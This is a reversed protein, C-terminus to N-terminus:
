FTFTVYSGAVHRNYDYDDVNSHNWTFTGRLAVEVFQAVPVALDLKLTLIHDQRRPGTAPDIVITRNEYQRFLYRVLAAAHLDLPLEIGAGAAVEFGDYDFETGDTASREYALGFRAFTLPAPLYIFQSVGLIHLEGDPDFNPIGGTSYRYEFNHFQYLVQTVGWDESTYTLSPAFRTMSRYNKSIDLQTTSYDIRIGSRLDGVMWGLDVWGVHTSQDVENAEAHISLFASYGFRLTIQEWDGLDFYTNLALVGTADDVRKPKVLSSSSEIIQVDTGVFTPNSDYEIGSSVDFGWWRSEPQIKKGLIGASLALPDSPSLSAADAFASTSADLNGMFVESLGIYYRAQLRLAPDLRLASQMHLVTESFKQRRYDAVGAYFEARANDPEVALVRDFELGAREARDRRLLAVGLAFRIGSDKPDAAVAREFLEIALEPRDQQSAIIGLYQLTSADERNELLAAEFHGKATELDNEGFAVVGRHYALEAEVSAAQASNSVISGLVSAVAALVLAAVVHRRNESVRTM